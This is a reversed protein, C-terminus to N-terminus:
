RNDGEGDIVGRQKRSALKALNAQCVDELNWGLNYCLGAIQWMIDGAEAMLEDYYRGETTGDISKRFIFDGGADVAEGKRIHKAIKGAFEGVEAVLNLLMYADNKCSEMCTSMAKEQYENLEM